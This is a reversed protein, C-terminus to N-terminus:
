WPMSRLTLVLQVIDEEIKNNHRRYYRAKEVPLASWETTWAAYLAHLQFLAKGLKIPTDKATTLFDDLSRISNKAGNYKNTIYVGKRIDSIRAELVSLISEIRPYNCAIASDM